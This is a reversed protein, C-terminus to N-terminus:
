ATREKMKIERVAIEDSNSGTMSLNRKFSSIEESM